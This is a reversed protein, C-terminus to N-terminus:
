HAVAPNGGRRAETDFQLLAPFELLFVALGSAPSDGIALGRSDVPDPIREFEDCALRLLGPMSSHRCMAIKM